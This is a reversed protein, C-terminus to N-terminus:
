GILRRRRETELRKLNWLLDEFSAQRDPNTASMASPKFDPALTIIVCGHRPPPQLLAINTLTERSDDESDIVM